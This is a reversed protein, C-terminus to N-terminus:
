AALPPVPRGLVVNGPIDMAGLELDAGSIKGVKKFSFPAKDKDHICFGFSDYGRYEMRKLGSILVPFAQRNGIYGIIGCM